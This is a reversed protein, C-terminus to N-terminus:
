AKAFAYRIRMGKGDREGTDMLLYGSEDIGFVNDGAEIQNNANM